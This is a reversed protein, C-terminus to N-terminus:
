VEDLARGLEPLQTRPFHLLADVDLDASGDDCIIPVTMRWSGARWRKGVRDRFAPAAAIVTVLRRADDRPMKLLAYGSHFAIFGNGGYGQPESHRAVRVAATAEGVDQCCATTIFGLRWLQRIVPIMEVDIPVREGAPTTLYEYPHILPDAAM